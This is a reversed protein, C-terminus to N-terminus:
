KNVYKSIVDFLSCMHIQYMLIFLQENLLISIYDLNCIIDFYLRLMDFFRKLDSFELNNLFFYFYFM